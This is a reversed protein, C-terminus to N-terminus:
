KLSSFSDKVDIQEFKFHIIDYFCINTTSMLPSYTLYVHFHGQLLHLTYFINLKGANSLTEFVENGVTCAVVGETAGICMRVCMCVCVCVCVCM